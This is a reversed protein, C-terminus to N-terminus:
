YTVDSDCASNLDAQILQPCCLRLQIRSVESKTMWEIAFATAIGCGGYAITSNPVGLEQDADQSCRSQVLTATYLSYEDSFYFPNYSIHLCVSACHPSFLWSDWGAAFAIRVLNGSFINETPSTLYWCLQRFFISWGQLLHTTRLWILGQSTGAQTHSQVLHDGSVRGFSTNLFTKLSTLM